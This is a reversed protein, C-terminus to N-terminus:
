ARKQRNCEDMHQSLIDSLKVCIVSFLIMVFWFLFGYGHVEYVGVGNVATDEFQHQGDDNLVQQAGGDARGIDDHEIIHPLCGNGGYRQGGLIGADQKHYKVAQPGAGGHQTGLVISFSIEPGNLDDFTYGEPEDQAYGQEKGCGCQQNGPQHHLNKGIVPIQNHCTCQIQTKHAKCIQAPTNGFDIQCYESTHSSDYDAGGHIYQRKRQIYDQVGYKNEAQKSSGREQLTANEMYETMM